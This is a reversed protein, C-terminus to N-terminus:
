AEEVPQPHHPVLILTKGEVRWSALRSLLNMGIVNADGLGPAVVADLDRAVINGMRLEDITGLQARITGNATRMMVSRDMPNQRIEADSATRPSLATLTAGTDVLFDREVGNVAARIWFHGDAQMPVRTEAGEVSQRPMGLQPLALDHGTTFRTVQAITLLLAALLGLNGVGRLFGGLIPAGRRMMGGLVTVFIAAIALALLPQETLYAMIESFNM